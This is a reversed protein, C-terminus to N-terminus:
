NMTIPVNRDHGVASQMKPISILLVGDRSLNSTVMAPDASAPLQYQRSMHRSVMIEGSQSREEHKGEVCVVGQGATVKLEDPKYGATDLSLEVKDREDCVKLDEADQLSLRPFDFDKERNFNLMNSFGIDNTLSSEMRQMQQSFREEAKSFFDNQSKQIDLWNDKFFPDDFFSERLNMPVLSTAKTKNELGSINEVKIQQSSKSEEKKEVSKKREMKIKNDEKLEQIRKEKPVTIVLVGDQSLNSVVETLKSQPTLGYQRRFQRSVMMEGAESREQHKGEVVLQGDAVNVSLESPKYGATNLSLELKTDDDVMNIVGSDSLKMSEADDLLSPMMWKRPVLYRGFKRSKTSGNEELKEDKKESSEIMKTSQSDRFFGGRFTEMDDWASKFFPDQLFHHRLTMPVRTEPMTITEKEKRRNREIVRHKNLQGM